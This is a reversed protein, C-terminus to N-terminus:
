FRILSLEFTSVDIFFRISYFKRATRATCLEGIKGFKRWKSQLCLYRRDWRYGFVHVTFAQFYFMISLIVEKNEVAFLKKKASFFM